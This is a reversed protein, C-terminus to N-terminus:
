KLKEYEAKAEKLPILDPDADKWAAFFDQYAKRAKAQDGAMAYARGLGLYSLPYFSVLPAVGRRALVREFEAAAEKGKGARLYGRARDYIPGPWANEYRRTSELLEIAKTPNGRKLEVAARIGPLSSEQIFPNAPERKAFEEGLVLAKAADGCQAYVVAADDLVASRQIEMASGIAALAERCNGYSAEVLAITSVGNAAGALQGRSRLIDISSKRLELFERRKGQFAAAGSRTNMMLFEDPKGKAWEVERQMAAAEGGIFALTYLATHTNM